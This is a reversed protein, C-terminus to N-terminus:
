FIKRGQVFEQARRRVQQQELTQFHDHLGRLKVVDDLPLPDEFCVGFSNGHRWVVSGFAEIGNVMLDVDDGIPPPTRDVSIQAGTQSLDDLQCSQHGTILIIKGPLALRV